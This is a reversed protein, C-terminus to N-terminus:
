CLRSGAPNARVSRSRDEAFCIGLELKKKLALLPGESDGAHGAADLYARLRAATQPNIALADRRGGKRMVRLSDYGRNQRLDGVKLVAFEARRLGVQLGVSDRNDGCGIVHDGLRWIDGPRTRATAAGARALRCSAAYADFEAIADRSRYHATIAPRRPSSVASTVEVQEGSAILSALQRHHQERRFLLRALQSDDLDFRAAYASFREKVVENLRCTIQNAMDFIRAAESGTFVNLPGRNVWPGLVAQDNCLLLLFVTASPLLVGALAQV